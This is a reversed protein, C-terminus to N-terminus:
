TITGTAASLSRFVETTTECVNWPQWASKKGKGVFASVNDCGSCAHFFPLEKSSPGLSRCVDHIQIIRFNQDKGVALWLADINLDPYVAIPLIVVDTDSSVITITRNETLSAHKAHLLMRSDAEKHNCPTLM